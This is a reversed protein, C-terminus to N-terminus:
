CMTTINLLEAQYYLNHLVTYKEGDTWIDSGRLGGGDTILTDLGKWTKPIWTYDNGLEYNVDEWKSQSSNWIRGSYYM